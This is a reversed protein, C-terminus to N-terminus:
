NDPHQVTSRCRQHPEPRPGPNRIPHPNTRTPIQRRQSRPHDPRPLAPVTWATMLAAYRPSTLLLEGHCGLLTEAGDLVLVRDARLAASLRHAIVVLIGGRAAFAAEALAETAPDLHSTAEDLIIVEAASAYVRALAVLQAEGASLTASSVPATLGGIRQVLSSAGVAACAALLEPDGAEPAFLTLNERLTDAFVYAEQPILAIMRHRLTPDVSRVPIGGLLVIGKAPTLMGTLLGSLTSKGIGSPGVVALVEGAALELDLGHLVPQGGAGWSFWLGRAAMRVESPRLSGPDQPPVESTEALRRLAVMMRLVVTSATAALGALAPQMTAALYVLAGLAAGASLRGSAILGPAVGLSLVLPLFGGIGIVATRAATSAALRRAALAQADVTDHVWAAAIRQAGCAVVDRRGALVTGAASAAREDALTVVRQRRALSPLLLAFVALAALVPIAAVWGLAGAITFTGVLAAITTVLTGRAQVLLGGTADRVVEVHQTIRAIGSADPTNRPPDPDHLVGRVVATVLL